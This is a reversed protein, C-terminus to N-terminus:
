KCGTRINRHFALGTLALARTRFRPPRNTVCLLTAVVSNPSREAFPATDVTAQTRRTLRARVAHSIQVTLATQAATNM